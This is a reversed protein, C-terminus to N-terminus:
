DPFALTVPVLLERKTHDLSATRLYRSLDPKELLSQSLHTMLLLYLTALRAGGPFAADELAFFSWGTDKTYLNWRHGPVADLAIPLSEDSFPSDSDLGRAFLLLGRDLMCVVSPLQELQRKEYLEAIHRWRYATSDVFVMFSFLPNDHSPRFMQRSRIVTRERQLEGGMCDLTECFAHVPKKKPDFSSKVEGIAYVSEFPVYENEDANRMLVPASEADAIIADIQPSVSLKSDVVHGHGVHYRKPLRRRLLERFALEIEDGASRINKARHSVLSKVRSQTLLSADLEFARALDLAPRRPAGLGKKKRKAM